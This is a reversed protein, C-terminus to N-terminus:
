PRCMVYGFANMDSCASIYSLVLWYLQVFYPDPRGGSPDPGMLKNLQDRNPSELHCSTGGQTIQQHQRRL